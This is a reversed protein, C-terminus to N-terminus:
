KIAEVYLSHFPATRDFYMIDHLIPNCSQGYGSVHINQKNFGATQLWEFLREHWWINKHALITDNTQINNLKECMDKGELGHAAVYERIYQLTVDRANDFGFCGNYCDNYYALESKLYGVFLAELDSITKSAQVRKYFETNGLAMARYYLLGDPCTIRFFGGQKLLRYVEDFLFAVADDTLHEIMNSTYVIEITNDDFPLPQKDEFNMNIFDHKQVPKYQESGMDINTWYKHYFKGAGLNLFLKNDLSHDSYLTHYIKDYYRSNKYKRIGNIYCNLHYGLKM